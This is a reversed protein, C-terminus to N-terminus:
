ARAVKNVRVTQGWPYVHDTSSAWIVPYRPERDPFRVYGDTFGIFLDPTEMQDNIWDLVPQMSTCGGGGTGRHKIKALDMADDIEDIYSIAADCWLVTLRQPQVDDLIGALEAVNSALEQDSRSGSTDGWIVIWGAGTGAKKPQFIDRGIYWEDPEKWNHAGGGCVRTILTEIHDLWPVEPELIEQFLRKLAGALNGQTRIQEITQATQVAVQWNQQNRDAAAQQPSQGTSNGPPLLKDFQGSGAGDDGLEGDDKRKKYVTAYVDLVSETGNMDDKLLCDKPPKGIKSERLLANIRYDMSHQMSTNDFPLSTGDHMPVKGSAQCRHLLEVDSYVNHVIEHAAIFTREALSYEFYTDPNLILNKGDTAAVPISRSMIATHKSDNNNLMKYWIHRFGPCTWAMMSNTDGWQSVQQPTLDCPKIATESQESPPSGNTVGSVIASGSM